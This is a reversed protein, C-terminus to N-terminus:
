CSNGARPGAAPVDDPVDYHVQELILGSAPATRGAKRRDCADRARAMWDPPFTGLGVDVLSGSMIRVMHRLFGDGEVEIHLEDRMEVIDLRQVTRRTDVVSSGTAQFSAFDHCGVLTRAATRMAAVDCPRPVHWVFWRDLPSVVPATNIRYRYRKGRADFRAHFGSPADEVTLVRIATPLRINLARRVADVPHDFRVRVSAVQGAAHVGADTRSAGEIHLPRPGEPEFPALAEEVRQQISVGNDQRQWGVFDTGDYAVTLKLTRMAGAAPM